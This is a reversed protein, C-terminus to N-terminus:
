FNSSFNDFNLPTRESLNSFRFYLKVKLVEIKSNIQEVSKRRNKSRQQLNNLKSYYVRMSRNEERNEDKKAFVININM